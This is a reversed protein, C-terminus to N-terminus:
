RVLKSDTTATPMLMLLTPMTLMTLVSAQHIASFSNSVNSAYAHITLHINCQSPWSHVLHGDSGAERVAGRDTGSIVTSM